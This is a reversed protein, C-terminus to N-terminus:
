SNLESIYKITEVKDDEFTIKVNDDNEYLLSKVKSKKYLEYDDNCHISDINSVLLENNTNLLYLKDNTIFLDKIVIEKNNHKEYTYNKSSSVYINAFDGNESTLVKYDIKKIDIFKNFGYYSIMTKNDKTHLVITTNQGENPLISSLYENGEIVTFDKVKSYILKSERSGNDNKAYSYLNGSTDLYVLEVGDSVNYYAIVSKVNVPKNLVVTKNNVTEKLKGDSIRVVYDAFGSTKSSDPNDTKYYDLLQKELNKCVDNYCYYRTMTSYDLKKVLSSYDKSIAKESKFAIEYKECSDTEDGKDDDINNDNPNVVPKDNGPYVQPLKPKGKTNKLCIGLIICLLSLLVIIILM